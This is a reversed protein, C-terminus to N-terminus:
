LAALVETAHGAPKVKRWVREVKGDPGVLFTTRAVGFFKRGYMSKEKWLGLETLLAREEDAILPYRLALKSAFKAHSKVSDPNLGYVKM